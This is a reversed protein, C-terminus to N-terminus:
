CCRGRVAAKSPPRQMCDASKRQSLGQDKIQQMAAEAFENEGPEGRSGFEQWVAAVAFGVAIVAALQNIRKNGPLTIPM